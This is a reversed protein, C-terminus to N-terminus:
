RMRLSNMGQLFTKSNAAYSYSNLFALHTKAASLLTSGVGRVGGAFGEHIMAPSFTGINRGAVSGMGAGWLGGWIMRGAGNHRNKYVGNTAGVVAGASAGIAAGRSMRNFLAGSRGTAVFSDHTVNELLRMIPGPATGARELFHSAKGALPSRAAGRLFGAITKAGAMVNPM